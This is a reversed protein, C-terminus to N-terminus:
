VISAFRGVLRAHWRRLLVRGEGDHRERRYLCSELRQLLVAAGAQVVSRRLRWLGRDLPGAVNGDLRRGDVHLPVLGLLRGRVRLQLDGLWDVEGRDLSTVLVM